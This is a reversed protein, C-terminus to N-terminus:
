LRILLECEHWFLLIKFPIKFPSSPNWPKTTLSQFAWCEPTAEANAPSSTAIGKGYSKQPLLRVAATLFPLTGVVLNSSM